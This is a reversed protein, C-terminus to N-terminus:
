NSNTMAMVVKLSRSVQIGFLSLLFFTLIDHTNGSEARSKQNGPTYRSIGSCVIRFLVVVALNCKIYPLQMRTMISGVIILTNRYSSSNKMSPNVYNRSEKTTVFIVLSSSYM